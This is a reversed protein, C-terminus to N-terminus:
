PAGIPIIRRYVVALDDEYTMQWNDDADLRAVLGRRRQKEILITNVGFRALTDDWNTSLNMVQMYSQWVERPVLHAHSAVFVSARPPGAWLLYDGWEYSNFVQGTPPFERLHKVAEVPTVPSLRSRNLSARDEQGRLSPEFFKVGVALAVVSLSICSWLLHPQLLNVLPPKRRAVRKWAASGHLAVFYAAVPAWWIIMRSTWCAAGGLGALLLIEAVRVRRPSVRYLMVLVLAVIAAAQGHKMRLTMPEWEVIDTLNANGSVSFVSAYLGIGYPNVLVSVAALETLLLYRRFERDGIVAAFRDTRRLVDCGRGVCFAGLMALGVLFSGHLNAWLVFLVPVAIWNARSWQRATLLAFLTVFCALGALQPRVIALHQWGVWLFLGMALLVFPASRSRQWARLALLAACLTVGAAYLFQIGVHGFTKITLFGLLQCLWATDVFAVGESLPMLPETAPLSGTSHIFRGYSLHGWLDTHWLPLFIHFVFVIALALVVLMAAPTTSIREGWAPRDSDSVALRDAAAIAQSPTQREPLTASM